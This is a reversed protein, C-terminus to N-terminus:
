AGPKVRFALSFSEYTRAGERFRSTAGLFRADSFRADGDLAPLIAAANTATGDVRWEDGVARANLVTVDRPLREGLAALVRLPDTRSATVSRTVAAEQDLAALRAQLAAAPAARPALAAQEATLRALVGDRSRDAAWVAFGLALACAAAAGALRRSRRREITRRQADSLLMASLQGDLRLAAGWAALLAPPVTGIAPLGLADAAAVPGPVHRAAVLRGHRVEVTGHADDNLGFAYTGDDSRALARALAVPAADVSEVPAWTEIAELWRELRVQDVAFAVDGDLAVVARENEVPFFRDPEVAIMRRRVSPTAPPLEVHKVHLHDLGIAVGIRGVRGLQGALVAIADQPRDPNWEIDAAVRPWDGLAALGVARLRTATVELGIRDTM